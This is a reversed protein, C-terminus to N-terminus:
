EDETEGMLFNVWKEQVNSGELHEMDAKPPPLPVAVSHIVRGFLESGERIHVRGKEDDTFNLLSAMLELVQRKKHADTTTLWDLLINKIVARDIVDDQTSQLRQIAEDLSRRMQVNEARYEHATAELKQVKLMVTRTEADSAAKAERLAAKHVEKLAEMSAAHAATLHAESEIRQEELMGMEAERESQFSELAAQLNDNAKMIREADARAVQLDAETAALQQQLTQVERLAEGREIEIQERNTKVSSAQQKLDSSERAHREKLM